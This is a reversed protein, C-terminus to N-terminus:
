RKTTPSWQQGRQRRNCETGARVQENLQRKAALLDADRKRDDPTIPRAHLSTSVHRQDEGRVGFQVQREIDDTASWVAVVVDIRHHLGNRKVVQEPDLSGVAAHELDNSRRDLALIQDELGGALEFTSQAPRQWEGDSEEFADRNPSPESASAGVGRCKQFRGVLEILEFQLRCLQDLNRGLDPLIDREKQPAARGPCGTETRDYRWQRRNWGVPADQDDTGGDLHRRPGDVLRDISSGDASSSSRCKNLHQAGGM